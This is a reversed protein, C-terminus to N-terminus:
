IFIEIDILFLDEKVMSIHFGTMQSYPPLPKPSSELHRLYDEHTRQSETWAAAISADAFNPSMSKRAFCRKCVEEASYHWPIDFTEIEQKWDEGFSGTILRFGDALPLGAWKGRAGSLPRGRHDKHPFFGSMLAEVSWTIIEEHEVM